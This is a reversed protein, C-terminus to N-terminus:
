LASMARAVRANAVRILHGGRLAEFFARQALLTVTFRQAVNTAEAASVDAQARARDAGRRAGTFVEVSSVLGASYATGSSTGPAGTASMIDSRMANSTASLTPLFAANAVRGESRAIRVTEEGQTVAPTRALARALVTRLDLVTDIRVARLSDAVGRADANQAAARGGVTLLLLVFLGVHRPRASSNVSQM